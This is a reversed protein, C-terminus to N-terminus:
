NILHLCIMPLHPERTAKIARRAVSVLIAKKVRRAVNAEFVKFAKSAKNVRRAPTVRRARLM